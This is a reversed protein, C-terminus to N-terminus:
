LSAHCPCLNYAEKCMSESLVSFCVRCVVVSEKVKERVSEM